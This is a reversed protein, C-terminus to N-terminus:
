KIFDFVQRQQDVLQARSRVVHVHQQEYQHVAKSRQLQRQRQLVQVVARPRLVGCPIGQAPYACM